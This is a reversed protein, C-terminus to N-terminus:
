KKKLDSLGGSLNGVPATIVSDLVEVQETGIWFRIKSGTVVQEGDPKVDVVRAPANTASYLVVLGNDRYYSAKGGYARKTENTLAVNGIAVIRKLDNTGSMFVFAKDAHMAYEEDDVFVHGTLIAVGEKRDYYATASTVKAPRKAKKVANTPSSVGVVEVVNTAPSAGVAEVANTSSPAATAVAASLVLSSFLATM